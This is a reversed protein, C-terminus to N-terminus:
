ADEPREFYDPHEERMRPVERLVTRLHARLHMEARDPDHEGVADIVRRHESIMEELYNPMGLSLRRIRNLHTKARESVTWVSLHGSLDCLTHHFSDDLLYFADLDSQEVAREQDQLNEELGAIDAAGASQAALRVAACELSERIFQADAIAAADVRSVFSGLQPVTEVLRDERLLSLGERIPTRSVGMEGALTNESLRQGPELQGRVIANRLAVYVQVRTPTSSSRIRNLSIGTAM